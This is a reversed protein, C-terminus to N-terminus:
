GRRTKLISIGEYQEYSDILYDEGSVTLKGYLSLDFSSNRIIFELYPKNSNSDNTTNAVEVVQVELSTISGSNMSGTAFNYNSISISTLTGKKVLDGLASFAQTVASDITKTLSM